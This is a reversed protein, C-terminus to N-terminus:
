TIFAATTVLKIFTKNYLMNFIDIFILVNPRHQAHAILVVMKTAIKVDNLETNAEAEPIPEDTNRIM